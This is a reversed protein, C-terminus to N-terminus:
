ALIELLEKRGERRNGDMAEGGTGYEMKSTNGM